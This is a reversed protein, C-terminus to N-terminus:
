FEGLMLKDVNGSVGWFYIDKNLVLNLDNRAVNTAGDPFDITSSKRTTEWEGLTSNYEKHVFTVSFRHTQRNTKGVKGLIQHRITLTDDLSATNGDYAYEAGQGGPLLRKLNYVYNVSSVTVTISSFM